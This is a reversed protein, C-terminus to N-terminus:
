KMFTTKFTYVKSEKPNLVQIHEKKELEKGLYHCDPLSSWPEICVFNSDADKLYTSWFAMVHFGEFTFTIARNSKTSRLSVTDFKPEDIILTDGGFREMEVSLTGQKLSHVKIDKTIKKSEPHQCLMELESYDHGFDLYYDGMEEGQELAVAYADHGGLQYYLIDEGINTVTHKKTVSTGDLSYAIELKFPFPFMDLYKQELMDSVLSFVVRTDEKTAVVFEVDRAFGHPTIHYLVENVSYENEKLTGIIPFLIPAHRKWVSPDAQWIYETDDGIHQFSIMEAGLSSFTVTSLENQLTINM